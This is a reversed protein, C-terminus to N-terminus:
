GNRVERGAQTSRQLDRRIQEIVEQDAAVGELLGQRGFERITDCVQRVMVTPAVGFEDALQLAVSRVDRSGDIRVWVITASPSLVHITETEEQYVVMEGRVEVSAIRSSREAAFGNDIDDAAIM